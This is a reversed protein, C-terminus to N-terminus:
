KMIYTAPAVNEVPLHFGILTESHGVLLYGGSVLKKCLKSAVIEQTKREFYIMVNRCFIIDFKGEFPYTEDLLNMEMFIARERVEPIVRVQGNAPDKSRMFYKHAFVPITRISQQKYVGRAAAKIVQTSIDTGTVRYHFNKIGNNKAFEEAIFAASYAEEGSSCASSLINLERDSGAGSKYLAPFGIKMLFDYHAAERFFSTEHTSVLDTFLRYEEGGSSSHIFDFYEGFSKMGLIRLRKSLRGTLLPKKAEPMKIGFEKEIYTSIMSRESETMIVNPDQMFSRRDFM